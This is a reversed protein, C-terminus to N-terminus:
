RRPPAPLSRSTSIHKRREESRQLNPLDCNQEGGMPPRPRHRRAVGPSSRPAFIDCPWTSYYVQTRISLWRVELVVAIMRIEHNSSIRQRKPWLAILSLKMLKTAHPGIVISVFPILKEGGDFARLNNRVLNEPVGRVANVGIFQMLCRCGIDAPQYVLVLKAGALVTLLQMWIEDMTVPTGQIENTSLMELALANSLCM